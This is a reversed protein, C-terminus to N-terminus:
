LVTYLVSYLALLVRRVFVRRFVSKAVAIWRLAVIMLRRRCLTCSAVSERYVYGCRVSRAARCPARDPPTCAGRWPRAKDRVHGQRKVGGSARAREDPAAIITRQAASIDCYILLLFM